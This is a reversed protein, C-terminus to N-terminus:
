VGRVGRCPNFSDIFPSSYSCFIEEPGPFDGVVECSMEELTSFYCGVKCWTAEAASRLFSLMKELDKM